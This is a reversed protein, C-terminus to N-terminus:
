RPFDNQAFRGNYGCAIPTPPRKRPEHVSIIMFLASALAFLGAIAFIGNYGVVKVLVGGLLAILGVPGLLSNSLAVYTPRRQPECFEVAMNFRSVQQSSFGVSVLAFVALYWWENPAIIALSAAALHAMSGAVLNIKHGFKDGLFGFVPTAVMRGAMISVTFRGVWKDALAFKELANIIYFAVAIITARQLFTAGLFNKFNRDVKLIAPLGSLYDRLKVKKSRLPYVPERVFALCFLSLGMLFLAMLFLLGYNQPFSIKSQNLVWEVILGAAVGLLTGLGMRLASLKARRRLPTVKAVLDFWAPNVFGFAVASTLVAGLCVALLLRPSSNGVFFCLLIVFILPIREWAGVALVYPKKRALREVFNSIFIQPTMWGIAEAAPVISILFDSAGLGRIFAPLVSAADIFAFGFTFLIGDLLNLSFNRRVNRTVENRYADFYDESHM